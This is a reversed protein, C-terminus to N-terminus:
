LFQHAGSYLEERRVTVCVGMQMRVFVLTEVKTVGVVAEGLLVWRGFTITRGEQECQKLAEPDFIM